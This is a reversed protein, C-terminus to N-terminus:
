GTEVKKYYTNNDDEGTLLGYVDGNDNIVLDPDWHSHWGAIDESWGNVVALSADIREFWFTEDPARVAAVMNGSPTAALAPSGVAIGGYNVWAGWGDRESRPRGIIYLHDDTGTHGVSIRNTPPNYVVSPTSFTFGGLNRLGTFSADRTYDMYLINHRDDNSVFSMGFAFQGSGLQAADPGTPSTQGSDVFLLAQLATASNTAQFASSLYIHHNDGTYLIRFSSLGWPIVVPSGIAPRPQNVPHITTGASARSVTLWLNGSSDNGRWVHALDGNTQRAEGLRGTAQLHSGDSLGEPHWTGEEGPQAAFAPSQTLLVVSSAATLAVATSRLKKFSPM